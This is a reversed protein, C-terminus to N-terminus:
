TESVKNKKKDKFVEHAVVVVCFKFVFVVTILQTFRRTRNLRDPANLWCVNGHMKLQSVGVEVDQLCTWRMDASNADPITRSDQLWRSDM